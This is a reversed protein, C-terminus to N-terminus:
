LRQECNLPASHRRGRSVVVFACSISAGPALEDGGELGEQHRRVARDTWPRGCSAPERSDGPRWWQCTGYEPTASDSRSPQLLRAGQWAERAATFTCGRLSTSHASTLASSSQVSDETRARLSVRWAYCSKLSLSAACWHPTPISSHPTARGADRTNHRVSPLPARRCYRCVRAEGGGVPPAAHQFRM